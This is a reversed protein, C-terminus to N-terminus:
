GERTIVGDENGPMLDILQSAAALTRCLVGLTRFGQRVSIPDFLRLPIIVNPQPTVEMATESEDDFCGVVADGSSFAALLCPLPPNSDMLQEGMEDTFEPRKAQKSIGCLELLGTILVKVRADRLTPVLERLSGPSLPRERIAKPTCGEVDPMEYQDANDEGEHWERLMEVREDGDRYDYVRVWRNLTGVFHVFFTAPLRPHSQELLELRPNFLVCAASVPDVILYLRGEQPRKESYEDLRDVLTLDLDFRRDIATCGHDRIWRELILLVYKSPDQGSRQWDEPAAIDSQVLTEALGIIERDDASFRHEAPLDALSPLSIGCAGAILKDTTAIRRTTTSTKRSALPLMARGSKGLNRSSVAIGRM